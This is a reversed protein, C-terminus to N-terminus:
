GNWLIAYLDSHGIPCTGSSKCSQFNRLCSDMEALYLAPNLVHLDHLFM